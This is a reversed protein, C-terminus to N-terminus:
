DWDKLLHLKQPADLSFLRVVTIQVVMTQGGGVHTPPWQSTMPLILNALPSLPAPGAEAEFPLRTVCQHCVRREVKSPATSRILRALPPVAPTVMSLRTLRSFDAFSQRSPVPSELGASLGVASPVM